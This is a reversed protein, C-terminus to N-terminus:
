SKDGRTMQWWEHWAEISRSKQGTIIPLIELLTQRIDKDRTGLQLFVANLVEPTKHHPALLLASEKVQVDEDYIGQVVIGDLKAEPFKALAVYSASRVLPDEDRTFKYLTSLADGHRSNGLLQILLLRQRLSAEAVDLRGILKVYIQPDQKLLAAYAEKSVAAETDMMAALFWEAHEPSALISLSKIAYRRVVPNNDHLRLRLPLVSWRGLKALLEAAAAAPSSVSSNYFGSGVYHSVDVQRDDALLVLILSIAKRALQPNKSLSQMAEIRDQAKESRLQVYIDTTSTVNTAPSKATGVETSPPSTQCGTVLFILLLLVRKKHPVFEM